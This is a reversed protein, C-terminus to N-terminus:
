WKLLRIKIAYNLRLLRFGWHNMFGANFIVWQPSVMKIFDESSSHKSGHHPAFLLDSQLPLALKELLLLEQKKEIDGTLLLSHKGDSVHLVCSNNNNNKTLSFPSLADVSLAGLSWHDGAKCLLANINATKNQVLSEGLIILKPKFAENIVAFGGAHDIDSHSIVLYDLQEIGLSHLYPVIESAASSFGSPYRPGTDYLLTQEQSRVLVASGQGVDMVEVFWQAPDNDKIKWFSLFAFSLMTVAFIYSIKRNNGAQFHIIFVVVSLSILLIILGSYAASYTQYAAEGGAFLTFFFSIIRDASSFLLLAIPEAVLSFLCGLLILPIILLSFLPVAIFNIFPSLLSFASFSVLQIPMMLLTLSLQILFLFKLYRRIVFFRSDIEGQKQLQTVSPFRWLVILIISVAAFSLWLSLSLVSLPDWLLIVFLTVSLLDFLACKRKMSLVLVAFLLMLFARQTPLSFGALYAYFLAGALATFNVLRWSIWGLYRQAFFRSM